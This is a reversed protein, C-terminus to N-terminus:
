PEIALSVLKGKADPDLRRGDYVTTLRSIKGDKDLAIATVGIIDPTSNASTWEFGGGADGGVVHRLTTGAGFPATPLIRALYREISTQGLVQARLTMDEYVADYTLMAAAAKADGKSLADHFNKATEAIKPSANDIIMNEEFDTLFREEKGRIQEFLASDFPGSDWHDVWRVV